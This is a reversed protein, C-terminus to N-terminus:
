CGQHLAVAWGARLLVIYLGVYLMYTLNTVLKQDPSLMLGNPIFLGTKLMTAKAGDFFGISGWSLRLVVELEFHAYYYNSFYFQDEAVVALDNLRCIQVDPEILQRSSFVIVQM